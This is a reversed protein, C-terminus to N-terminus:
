VFSIARYHNCVSDRQMSAFRVSNRQSLLHTMARLVQSLSASSASPELARRPLLRTLQRSDIQSSVSSRSALPLLVQDLGLSSQPGAPGM